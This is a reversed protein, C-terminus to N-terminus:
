SHTNGPCTKITYIVMSHFATLLVQIAGSDVYFCAADGTATNL